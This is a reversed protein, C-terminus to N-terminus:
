ILIIIIIFAFIDTIHVKVIIARRSAEVSMYVTDRIHLFHNDLIALPGVDVFVISKQFCIHM